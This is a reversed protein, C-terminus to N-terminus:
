DIMGLALMPELVWSDSMIDWENPGCHGDVALLKDFGAVFGRVESDESARLRGLLDDVGADFVAYVAPSRRVQRSLQWIREATGASDVGGIASFVEIAAEPRGLEGAVASVVGPGVTAAIAVVCYVDWTSRLRHNALRGYEVLEADSVGRNSGVNRGLAETLDPKDCDLFAAVFVLWPRMLDLYAEGWGAPRGRRQRCGPRRLRLGPVPPIAYLPVRDGGMEGRVTDRWPSGAWDGRVGDWIGALEM